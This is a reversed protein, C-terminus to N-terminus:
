IDIIQVVKDKLFPDTSYTKLAEVGRDFSYILRKVLEKRSCTRVEPIFKMGNKSELIVRFRLHAEQKIARASEKKADGALHITLSVNNVANRNSFFCRNLKNIESYNLDLNNASVGKSFKYGSTLVPAPISHNNVIFLGGGILAFIIVAISFYLINNSKNKDM